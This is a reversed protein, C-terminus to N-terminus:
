LNFGCGGPGLNFLRGTSGGPWAFVLLAFANVQEILVTNVLEGLKAM